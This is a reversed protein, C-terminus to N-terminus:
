RIEVFVDLGERQALAIDVVYHFEKCRQGAFGVQRLPGPLQAPLASEGPGRPRLAVRRACEPGLWRPGLLRLKIRAASIPTGTSRRPGPVATTNAATLQGCCM